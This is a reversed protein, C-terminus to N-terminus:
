GNSVKDVKEEKGERRRRINEYYKAYKKNLKNLEETPKNAFAQCLLNTAQDAEIVDSVKFVLEDTAKGAKHADLISSVTSSTLDGTYETKNKCIKKLRTFADKENREFDEWLVPRIESLYKIMDSAVVKGLVSAAFEYFLPASLTMVNMIDNMKSWSRSSIYFGEDGIEEISKYQWTGSEVFAILGPNYKQEKMYNVLTLHDFKVNHFSLRNKLAPDMSEVNFRSGEPNLAVAMLCDEPLTYTEGVKRDTFVQMLVNMSSADGRNPEEFLWLTKKGHKPLVDPLANITFWQGDVQVVQPMGVMDPREKYALRCDVLHYGHKKAWQQCVESKGIGSDGAFCPVYKGGNARIAAAVDLVQFIQAPKITSGM